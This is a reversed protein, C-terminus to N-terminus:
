IGDPYIPRIDYPIDDLNGLVTQAENDLPLYKDLFAKAADYNGDGQLMVIKGTLDSIAQELKAFDIEFREQEPLWAVAGVERFYNYQFAAGKAHAAGTGFRMSRFKGSFYTALFAQKDAIDLEGREM